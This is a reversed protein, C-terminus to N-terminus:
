CSNEIPRRVVRILLLVAVFGFIPLGPSPAQQASCSCGPPPFQVTIPESWGSFDGDNNFAGVRVQMQSMPPPSIGGACPGLNGVTLYNDFSGGSVRSDWPFDPDRPDPETSIVTFPADSALHFQANVTGTSSTCSNGFLIDYGPLTDVGSMSQVRTVSPPAPAGSSRVVDVEGLEIRTEVDPVFPDPVRSVVQYRSGLELPEDPQLAVGGWLLRDTVGVENGSPGVLLIEGAFAVSTSLDEVSKSMRLWVLGRPTIAQPSEFALQVEDRFICSCAAAPRAHHVAAAVVLVAFLRNM